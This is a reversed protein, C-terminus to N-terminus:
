ETGIGLNIISPLTETVGTEAQDTRYNEMVQEGTAGDLGEVPELNEQAANPNATMRSVNERHSRGYNEGVRSYKACGLTFAATTATALLLGLIRRKM